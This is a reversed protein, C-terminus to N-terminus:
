NKAFRAVSERRHMELFAVRGSADRLFVATAPLGEVFFSADSYPQLVSRGQGSLPIAILSDGQRIVDYGTAGGGVAVYKGVYADLITTDVPAAAPTRPVRTTQHFAWRWSGNRRVFVDVGHYTDVGRGAIRSATTGTRVVVDPTIIFDSPRVIWSSDPTTRAAFALFRAADDRGGTSHIFAFDDTVYRSFAATDKMAAARQAASRLAALERILTSDARSQQAAADRPAFALLLLAHCLYRNM